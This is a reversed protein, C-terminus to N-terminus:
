LSISFLSQQSQDTQKIFFGDYEHLDNVADTNLRLEANSDRMMFEQVVNELAKSRQLNKATSSYMSICPNLDSYSADLFPM